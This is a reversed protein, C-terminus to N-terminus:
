LSVDIYGQQDRGGAPRKRPPTSKAKAKKEPLALIRAPYWSGPGGRNYRHLVCLTQMCRGGYHNCRARHLAFKGEADLRYRGSKDCEYTGRVLKLYQPCAILIGKRRAM